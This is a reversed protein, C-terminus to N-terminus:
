RAGHIASQVADRLLPEMREYGQASPHVGDTTLGKLYYGSDDALASYYDALAYNKQNALSKIWNNLTQIERHGLTDDHGTAIGDHAVIEDHPITGAPTKEPDREETALGTPPLTALVVYIGHKEAFEAMSALNHEILPLPTQAIDNTGGLIVVVRPHLQVVDRNFRSFMQATFESPVGRNIIQLGSLQKPPALGSWRSTISDGILVVCDTCLKQRRFAFFAAILFM